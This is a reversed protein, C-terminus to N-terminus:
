VTPPHEISESSLKPTFGKDPVSADGRRYDVRKANRRILDLIEGFRPRSTGNLMAVVMQQHQADRTIPRPGGPKEEELQFLKYLFKSLSWDAERIVSLIDKLKQSDTRARRRGPTEAQTSM